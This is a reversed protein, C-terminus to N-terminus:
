KLFDQTAYECLGPFCSDFIECYEDLSEQILNEGSKTIKISAARRDKKDVSRKIYKKKTLRSISVTVVNPRISLLESLDKLKISQNGNTLAHLVRSENSSLGQSKDLVALKSLFLTINEILATRMLFLALDENNCSLDFSAYLDDTSFQDYRNRIAEVDLSTNILLQALENFKSQEFFVTNKSFQDNLIEIYIPALDKGKQTLNLYVNRKDLSDFSREILGMEELNNVSATTTSPKLYLNTAASGITNNPFLATHFLIRCQTINIGGKERSEKDIRHVTQLFSNIWDLRTGVSLDLDSSM